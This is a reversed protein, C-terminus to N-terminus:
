SKIYASDIILAEWFSTYCVEVSFLYVKRAIIIGLGVQIVFDNRASM